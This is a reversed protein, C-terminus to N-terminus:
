IFTDSLKNYLYNKIVNGKFAAFDKIIVTQTEM